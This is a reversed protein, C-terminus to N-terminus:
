GDRGGALADDEVRVQEWFRKPFRIAEREPPLIMRLPRKTFYTHTWTGTGQYTGGTLSSVEVDSAGFWPDDVAVWEGGFRRYGEIVAFHGGGGSWGIRWALPRAADIEGQITAYDVSGGRFEALVGARDLPANLSHPQNCAMSGGDSCCTTQVKEENVMECQTWTSSPSYYHSVSVSTASWCWQTQLQTQM